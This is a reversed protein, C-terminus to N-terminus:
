ADPAPARPSGTKGALPLQGPRAIREHYFTHLLALTEEVREIHFLHDAGSITTFMGDRFADAVKRCYEPRAYLDHEGTFVLAPVPPPNDLDLPPHYLLRRTNHICCQKEQAGMRRIRATLIRRALRHRHVPRRPDRCLLGAAAERAFEDQRGEELLMLTYATPLWQAEPIERMLGALALGGVREPHRQAFRYAAPSAYSAAVLLAGDLSAVHFLVRLAEALFDLGYNWPLVDSRGCGPLDLLAVTTFRSFHDAYRRWGNMSQLAGSVIVVPPGAVPGAPRRVRYWYRFGELELSQDTDPNLSVGAGEAPGPIAPQPIRSAGPLSNGALPERFSM